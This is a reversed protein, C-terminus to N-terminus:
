SGARYRGAGCAGTHNQGCHASGCPDNISFIGHLSIVLGYSPPTEELSTRGTLHCWNTDLQGFRLMVLKLLDSDM